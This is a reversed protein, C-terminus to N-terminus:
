KCIKELTGLDSLKKVHRDNTTILWFSFLYVLIVKPDKPAEGKGEIHLINRELKIYLSRRLDEKGLMFGTAQGKCFIPDGLM